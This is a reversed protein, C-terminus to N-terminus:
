LGFYFYKDCCTVSLFTKLFVPLQIQKEGTIEVRINYRWTGKTTQVRCQFTADKVDSVNKIILTAVETTSIVFRDDFVIAAPTTTLTGVDAGGDINWATVILVEGSGLTYNWKLAVNTSGNLVHFNVTRIDNVDKPTWAPPPSTWTLTGAKFNFLDTLHLFQINQNAM